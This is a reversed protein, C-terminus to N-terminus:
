SFDLQEVCFLCFHNTFSLLLQFCLDNKDIKYQVVQNKKFLDFNKLMNKVEFGITGSDVETKTEIM